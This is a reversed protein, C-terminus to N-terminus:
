ANNFKNCLFSLQLRYKINKLEIWESLHSRLTSRERQDNRTDTGISRDVKTVKLAIPVTSQGLTSFIHM